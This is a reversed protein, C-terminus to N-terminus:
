GIDDLPRVKRMKWSKVEMVKSLQREKARLETELRDVEVSWAADTNRLREEVLPADGDM